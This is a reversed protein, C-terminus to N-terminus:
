LKMVDRLMTAQNQGGQEWVSFAVRTPATRANRALRAAWDTRRRQRSAPSPALHDPPPKPRSSPPADVEVTTLEILRLLKARLVTPVLQPAAVKCPGGPAAIPPRLRQNLAPANWAPSKIHKGLRTGIPLEDARPVNITRTYGPNVSKTCKARLPCGCCHVAAISFRAYKRNGQLIVGGFQGLNGQPCRLEQDKWTWGEHKRLARSWPLRAIAERVTQHMVHKASADASPGRAPEVAPAEAVPSSEATSEPLATSLEIVAESATADVYVRSIETTVAPTPAQAPRQPALSSTPEVLRYGLATKLNFAWLGIMMALRQGAMNLSHLRLVKVERNLQAFRNEIASRGFYCEVVEPATWGGAPLATGFMEYHYDGMMYGSGHKTEAAFRSVVLRITVSPGMPDRDSGEPLLLYEGLDMAERHPGSLADPVPQWSGSEMQLRAPESELLAYRSMRVLPVLHDALLAAILVTVDGAGDMRVVTREVPIGALRSMERAALCIEKAKDAPHPNGAELDVYGFVGAGAHQLVHVALQVEGRQRGSYGPAGMAAARLIAEPLDPGDPLGRKRFPVIVGDWDLMCWYVGAGDRYMSAADSLLPGVMSGDGLLWRGVQNLDCRQATNLTRSVAAQTAFDERKALAALDKRWGLARKSLTGLSGPAKKGGHGLFFCLLFLASDMPHYGGQRNWRVREPLESLVGGNRLAELVVAFPRLFDPLQPCRDPTGTVTTETHAM